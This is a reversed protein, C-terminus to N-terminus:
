SVRGVCKITRALVTGFLWCSHMTENVWRLTRWQRGWWVLGPSRLSLGSGPGLATSEARQLSGHPGTHVCRVEYAQSPTPLHTFRLPVSCPKQNHTHADSVESPFSRSCITRAEMEWATTMYALLHKKGRSQSVGTFSLNPTSKIVQASQVDQEAVNPCGM